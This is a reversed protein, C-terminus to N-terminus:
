PASSIHSSFSLRVSSGPQSDLGQLFVSLDFEGSLHCKDEKFFNFSVLWLYEHDSHVHGKIM